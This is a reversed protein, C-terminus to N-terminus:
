CCVQAPSGVSVDNRAAEDGAARGPVSSTRRASRSARLEADAPRPVVALWPRKWEGGLAAAVRRDRPEAMLIACSEERQSLAEGMGMALGRLPRRSSSSRDIGPFLGAGPRARPPSPALAGALGRGMARHRTARARHNAPAAAPHIPHGRRPLLPAASPAPRPLVGSPRPLRSRGAAGAASPGRAGIGSPTGARTHLCLLAAAAPLRFGAERM